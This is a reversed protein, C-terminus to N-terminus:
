EGKIQKKLTLSNDNTFLIYYRQIIETFYHDKFAPMLGDKWQQFGRCTIGCDLIMRADTKEVIKLQPNDLNECGNKLVSVLITTKDIPHIYKFTIDAYDISYLYFASYECAFWYNEIRYLYIRNNHRCNAKEKLLIQRISYM